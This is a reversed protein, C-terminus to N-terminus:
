HAESQGMAQAAAAAELMGRVIIEPVPQPQGALNSAQDLFERAAKVEADSISGPYPVGRMSDGVHKKIMRNFLEHAEPGAIPM